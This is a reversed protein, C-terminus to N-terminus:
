PANERFEKELRQVVLEFWTLLELYSPGMWFYSASRFHELVNVRVRPARLTRLGYCTAIARLTEVYAEQEFKSRWTKWGVYFPLPLFLYMFAYKLRGYKRQQRLHVAEHRLTVYRDMDSQSDWKASTYITNGITTTFSTLFGRMQNFTLIRLLVDLFRMFRSASKPIVRLKPFEIKVSRLESAYWGDEHNFGMMRNRKHHSRFRDLDELPSPRLLM